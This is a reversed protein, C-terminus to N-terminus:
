ESQETATVLPSRSIGLILPAYIQDEGFTQRMQEYLEQPRTFDTLIFVDDQDVDDLSAFCKLGLFDTVNEDFVVVGSLEIDFERSCLLVIEAVDGAGVLTVKRHGHSSCLALVDSCSKRANRFFNFSTSLYEGTLRSKEAFGQPTLYYAYRNAPAQTIKVYGKKICRKLYANVMGLAIGMHQAAGRQTLHENEEVANLLALTIATQDDKPM